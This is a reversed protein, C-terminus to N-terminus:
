AAASIAASSLLNQPLHLLCPPITTRSLAGRSIDAEPTQAHTKSLHKTEEREVPESAAQSTAPLSWLRGASEDDPALRLWGSQKAPLNVGWNILNTRLLRMHDRVTGHKKRIAVLVLNSSQRRVDFQECSSEGWTYLKGLQEATLDPLDAVFAKSTNTM